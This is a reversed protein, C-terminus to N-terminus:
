GRVEHMEDIMELARDVFNSMNYDRLQMVAMAGWDHLYYVHSDRKAQDRYEEPLLELLESMQSLSPKVNSGRKQMLKGWLIQNEEKNENENM